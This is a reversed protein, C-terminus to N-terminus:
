GDQPLRFLFLGISEEHQSVDHSIAGVRLFAEPLGPLGCIHDQRSVMVIADNRQGIGRVEVGKGLRGEKPGPILDGIPLRFVEGLERQEV